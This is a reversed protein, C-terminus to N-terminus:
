PSPPRRTTIWSGRVTWVSGSRLKVKYTDTGEVAKVIVGRYMGTEPHRFAIPTNVLYPPQEPAAEDTSIVRTVRLPRM